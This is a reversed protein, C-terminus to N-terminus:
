FKFLNEPVSINTKIDKVRYQSVMEKNVYMEASLVIFTEADVLYIEHTIEPDLKEPTEVKLIYVKKGNYYTIGNLEVKADNRSIRSLGILATLPKHGRTNEFMPNNISFTLPFLGWVGAAKVKVKDGGLYILTAGKAMYDPSDIVNLIANNPKKFTMKAIITEERIQGTHKGNKMDGKSYNSFIAQFIKNKSDAELMKQIIQKATLKDTRFNEQYSFQSNLNQAFSLKSIFPVLLSIMIVELLKSKKM